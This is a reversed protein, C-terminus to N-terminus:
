QMGKSTAGSTDTYGKVIRDIARTLKDAMGSDVSLDIYYAPTGVAAGGNDFGDTDIFLDAFQDLDQDLKATLKTDDIKLTGDKQLDFGLLKLTGFGSVDGAVQSPTAGFLESRITSQITKLSSDGFLPGGTGQGETFKSQENIFTTVANYADVFKQLKEKIVTKDPEVTFTTTKLPDATLVSISLGDIVDGFDNSSRQITLGDIVAIANNGVTLNNTSQSVGGVPGTADITLAAITSSIGSIRKDEGTGQGSLVLQYSPNTATGSNVVSAAVKGASATNIAVAIDNLSSTAQSVTANYAVGDFTFSVGQGDALALNAAPDTVGNFAWRDSTALQNVKITHSGAIATGSAKFTATTADSAGVSFALFESRTSLSKAATRLSDVLGKLTTFLGLKKTEAAKKATLAEIPLGEVRVLASIIGQTDLGSGLGGITIGPM